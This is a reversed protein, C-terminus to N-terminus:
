GSVRCIFVPSVDDYIIYDYKNVRDINFVSSKNSLFEPLLENTARDNNYKDIRGQEIQIRRGSMTYHFNVIRAIKIPKKSPSCTDIYGYINFIGSKDGKFLLSLNLNNCMKDGDMENIYIVTKCEFESLSVSNSIFCFYVASIIIIIMSLIFIPVLKLRSM